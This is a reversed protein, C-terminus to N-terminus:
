GSPTLMFAELAPSFGPLDQPRTSPGQRSQRFLGYVMFTPTSPQGLFRLVSLKGEYPEMFTGRPLAAYVSCKIREQMKLPLPCKTHYRIMQIM